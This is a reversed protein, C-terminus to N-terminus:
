NMFILIGGAPVEEPHRFFSPDIHTAQQGEGSLFGPIATQSNGPFM